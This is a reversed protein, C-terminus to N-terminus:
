GFVMVCYWLCLFRVECESDLHPNYHLHCARSWLKLLAATHISPPSNPHFLLQISPFISSCNFSRISPSSFTFVSFFSFMKMHMLLHHIITLLKQSDQAPATHTRTVATTCRMERLSLSLSKLLKYRINLTYQTWIPYSNLGTHVHIQFLVFHDQSVVPVTGILLSLDSSLLRFCVCVCVCM